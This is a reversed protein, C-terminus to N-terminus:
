LDLGEPAGRMMGEFAGQEIDNLDTFSLNDPPVFKTEDVSWSDCNYQVVANLDVTDPSAATVDRTSVSDENDMVLAMTGAVTGSWLYTRAGDNIMNALYREGGVLSQSELAFKGNGFWVTGTSSTNTDVTTFTCVGSTRSAFLAYLTGEGVSANELAEGNPEASSEEAPVTLTSPADVVPPQIFYWGIAGVASLAILSVILTKM